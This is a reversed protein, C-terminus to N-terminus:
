ELQEETEPNQKQTRALVLQNSVIVSSWMTAPTFFEM